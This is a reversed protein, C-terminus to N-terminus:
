GHRGVSRPRAHAWNALTSSLRRLMLRTMALYIGTETTEGLGSLRGPRFYPFVTRWPPVGGPLMRWPGGGGGGRLVYFIASLIEPRAVSRPRGRAQPRPLWPELVAWGEDSLDGGHRQGNM